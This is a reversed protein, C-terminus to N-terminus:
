SAGWTRVLDTYSPLEESNEFAAAIKADSEKFPSTKEEKPAELDVGGGGKIEAPPLASSISPGDGSPVFENFKQNSSSMIGVGTDEGRIKLFELTKISYSSHFKNYLQLISAEFM